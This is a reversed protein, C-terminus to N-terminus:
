ENSKMRMCDHWSWNQQQLTEEKSASPSLVKKKLGTLELTIVAWFIESVSVEFLERFFKLSIVSLAPVTLVSNLTQSFRSHAVRRFNGKSAVVKCCCICKSITLFTVQIINKTVYNCFKWQCYIYNSKGVIDQFYNECYMFCKTIYPVWLVQNFNPFILSLKMNFFLSMLLLSIRCLIHTIRLM